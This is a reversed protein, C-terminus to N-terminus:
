TLRKWCYFAEYPPMNNHAEGGGADQQYSTIYNMATLKTAGVIGWSSSSGSANINLAHKHPPIEDITLTHEAEGGTAAAAYVDGAALIFKDKVREWTGGGFVTAPNTSVESWYLSGPPHAALKAEAVADAIVQALTKNGLKGSDAAQATIGLYDEDHDHAIDAYELDHNHLIDAYDLDHNHAIDAYDLDHDHAIDAYDSDHDHTISSYESELDRAAPFWGTTKTGMQLLFKGFQNHNLTNTKILLTSSTSDKACIATAEYYYWESYVQKSQVVGFNLVTDGTTTEIVSVEVDQYDYRKWFSITYFNDDKFTHTTLGTNRFYAPQTTAYLTVGPEGFITTNRSVSGGEASWFTTDNKCISNPILNDGGIRIPQNVDDRTSLVWGSAIDSKELKLQTLQTPTTNATTIELAYDGSSYNISSASTATIKYYYMVYVGYRKTVSSTFSSGFNIPVITNNAINVVRVNGISAKDILFSVTYNSNPQLDSALISRNVITGVASLETVYIYPRNQTYAWRIAPTGSASAIDWYQEGANGDTNKLLNDVYLELVAGSPGILGQEGQPGQPGEPGEPGEPGQPGTLAALQESTFDAYEFADGQPGQPGQPGEPGEPGDDGQIGQIGQIGQLGQPGDEGQIGQLGQPGDEGQIGQIGQPGEPGIPGIEGQLGQPGQPGDEGQPGQIGQIGQLGQPGAPGTEGQPGAPGTAGTPGVIGGGEVATIAKLSVQSRQIAYSLTQKDYGFTANIRFDDEEYVEEIDTLYFDKSGSPLYEDYITGIDGLNYNVKYMNIMQQGLTLSYVDGSSYEALKEAGRDDLLEVDAIDRADVYIEVRDLGTKDDGVFVLERDVGEGQGAVLATAPVYHNKTYDSSGLTDREYSVILKDNTSQAATRNVGNYIHFVIAGNEIDAYWGISYTSALEVISEALSQFRYTKTINSNIATYAAISTNSILRDAAAAVIQTRLLEKMIYEPTGALTLYANDVPPMIIRNATIGKLEVGTITLLSKGEENKSNVKKVLGAVGAGAAIYNMGAIRQANLTSADLVLQWTGIGSHSRQFSFSEYDDVVALLTLPTSHSYCYIPNM